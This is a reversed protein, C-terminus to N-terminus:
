TASVPFYWRRNFEYITNIKKQRVLWELKDRTEYHRYKHELNLQVERFYVIKKENILTIVDIAFQDEVESRLRDVVERSVRHHGGVTKTVSIKGSYIWRKVTRFSVGLIKAAEGTTYWEKEESM